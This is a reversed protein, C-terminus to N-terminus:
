ENLCRMRVSLKAKCNAKKPLNQLGEKLDDREFELANREKEAEFIVQKWLINWLSHVTMKRLTAATMGNATNGFCYM